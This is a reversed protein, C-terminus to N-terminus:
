SRYLWDEILARSLSVPPPITVHGADLEARLGDRSFWRADDIEDGLRIAGEAVVTRFGIMLTHPFPWPQSGFYEVARVVLGVEEEVERAVGAELTEGPEVFGALTSYRGAPWRPQHLLLCEEERRLLTIIAPDTRPFVVEGCGPASCVRQHGSEAVRTPEGCLGCCRARAHWAHLAAGTGALAALEPSLVALASRLGEFRGGTGRELAAVAAHNEALPVARAAYSAGAVSGLLVLPPEGDAPAPLDGLRELVPADGRLLVRDGRVTLVLTGPTLGAGDGRPPHLRDVLFRADDSV